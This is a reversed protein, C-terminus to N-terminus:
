KKKVEKTRIIENIYKIGKGKYPESKKYARIEAAVKTVLEFDIGSVAILTPKICTIKIHKPINYEINHSFGLKLSLINNEVKSRFGIGILILKVTWGQSVGIIMNKVITRFTGWMHEYQKINKYKADIEVIVVGDKEILNLFFPIKRSLEGEKGQIILNEDKQVIKVNNPLKIPEKGIHSV